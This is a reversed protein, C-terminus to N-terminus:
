ARANWSAFEMGGKLVAKERYEETIRHMLWLFLNERNLERPLATKMM